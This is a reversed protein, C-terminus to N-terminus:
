VPTSGGQEADSQHSQEEPHSEIIRDKWVVSDAVGSDQAPIPPNNPWRVPADPDRMTDTIVLLGRVRSDSLGDLRKILEERPDDRHEADPAAAPPGDYGAWRLAEDAAWGLVRAIKRVTIRQPPRADRAASETNRWTTVSIGAARAADPQTLELRERQDRVRFGFTQESRTCLTANWRM